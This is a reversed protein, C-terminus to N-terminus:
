ALSWKKIDICMDHMKEDFLFMGFYVIDYYTQYNWSFYTQPRNRIVDICRNM